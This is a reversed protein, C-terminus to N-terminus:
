SQLLVCGEAHNRLQELFPRQQACDYCDPLTDIIGQIDRIDFIIIGCSLCKTCVVPVGFDWPTVEVGDISGVAKRVHLRLSFRTARGLYIFFSEDSSLPTITLFPFMEVAIDRVHQMISPFHSARPRKDIESAQTYM